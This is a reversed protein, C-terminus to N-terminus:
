PAGGEAFRDCAAALEMDNRTLGQVDHTTLALTVKGYRIDIDPHHDRREAEDAVQNVFKMAQVFDAFHYTRAIVGGSRTWGPLRDLHAEIEDESLLTRRM